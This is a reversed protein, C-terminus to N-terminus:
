AAIQVIMVCTLADLTVQVATVAFQSGGVTGFILALLGPYGPTRNMRPVGDIGFVGHRLMSLGLDHYEWSDYTQYVVETLGSFFFAARFAIAGFFVAALLRREERPTMEDTM